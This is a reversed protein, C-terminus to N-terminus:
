QLLGLAMKRERRYRALLGPLEAAFPKKKFKPLRSVYAARTDYIANILAQQGQINPQADGKLTGIASLILRAPCSHQVATSWVANRVALSQADINLGTAEAVHKVVPDYYAHKAYNYQANLFAEPEAAAVRRWVTAVVGNPSAADKLGAFQSRWPAAYPSNLFKMVQSQSPDAPRGDKPKPLQTSFQFAGYSVGGPDSGSKNASVIGAARLPNASSEQSMSLIGLNEAIAPSPSTQRAGTPRHSAQDKHGSQAPAIPAPSAAASDTWEGAGIAGSPQRLETLYSPVDLTKILVDPAMGGRMLGDAIYLRRADERPARLPGPGSLALHVAARSQQGQRHSHAARRLHGLAADTALRGYAVCLLARLREDAGSDDAPPEASTLITGSGLVLGESKFYPETEIAGGRRLWRRELQEILM